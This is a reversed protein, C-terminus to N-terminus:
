ESYHADERPTLCYLAISILNICGYSLQISRRAVFWFTPPEFGEPHVLCFLPKCRHLGKKKQALILRLILVVENGATNGSSSMKRRLM